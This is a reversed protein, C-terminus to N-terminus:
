FQVLVVQHLVLQKMLEVRPTEVLRDRQIRTLDTQFYLEARHQRLLM